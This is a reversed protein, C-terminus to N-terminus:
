FFNGLEHFTMEFVYVEPIKPRNNPESDFSL